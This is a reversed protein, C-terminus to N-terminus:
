GYLVVHVFHITLAAQVHLILKYKLGIQLSVLIISNPVLQISSFLVSIDETQQM